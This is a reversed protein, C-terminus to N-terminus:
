IGSGGQAHRWTDIAVPAALPEPARVRGLAPDFTKDFFTGAIEAPDVTGWWTRPFTVDGAQDLGMKVNYRLNGTVNNEEIITRDEARTVAFIGVDNGVIDNHHVRGSGRREEYRIGHTNDHIRNGAVEVRATSFRVGDVNHRFVSDTISAACFHVQIGSYAYEAVVQELVGERAFDLYIFKWDARAPRDAGSTFLIPEGPRGKAVLAGEVLLEGDGIGDGDRDLKEFVVRTGPLITLRGGKKVTVIGRIRVEGSWVAEGAIVADELIAAPRAAACGGLVLLAALLSLRRGM